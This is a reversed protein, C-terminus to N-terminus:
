QEDEIVSPLRIPVALIKATRAPADYRIRLTRCKRGVITVLVPTQYGDGPLAAPLNFGPHISDLHEAEVDMAQIMVSNSNVDLEVSGSPSITSYRQSKPSPVFEM